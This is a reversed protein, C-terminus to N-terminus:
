LKDEKFMDTVAIRLRRRPEFCKKNRAQGLYYRYVGRKSFIYFWTQEEGSYDPNEVAHTAGIKAIDEKYFEDNNVKIKYPWIEIIRALRRYCLFFSISMFIGVAIIGISLGRLLPILRLASDDQGYIEAPLFSYLLAFDGIGLILAGLGYFTNRISAAPFEIRVVGTNDEKEKKIDEASGSQMMYFNLLPIIGNVDLRAKRSYKGGAPGMFYRAVVKDYEDQVILNLTCYHMFKKINSEVTVYLRQEHIMYPDDNLVVLGLNCDIEVKRLPRRMQVLAAIFSAPWWIFYIVGFFSLLGFLPHVRMLPIGSGIVVAFIVFSLILHFWQERKMRGCDFETIVPDTLIGPDPTM